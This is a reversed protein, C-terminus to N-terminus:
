HHSAAIEMASTPPTYNIATAGAADSSQQFGAAVYQGLLTISLSETGSTVTLTGSTMDSSEAFGITDSSNYLMTALDIVGGSSLSVSGVYGGNFVM